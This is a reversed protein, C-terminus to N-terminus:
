RARKSEPQSKAANKKYERTREADIRRMERYIAATREAPSLRGWEGERFSREAAEFQRGCFKMWAQWWQYGCAFANTPM